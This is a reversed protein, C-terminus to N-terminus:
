NGAPAPIDEWDVDEIRCLVSEFENWVIEEPERPMAPLDFMAVDGTMAIRQRVFAGDGLDIRVPFQVYFDDPVDQQDIKCSITWSGDANETQKTAIRYTPLYSNYIWQDFFWTMDSNVHREVMKRFDDTSVARGKNEQYFDRLIALFTSEDFTNLDMIMNRLMHLFWAGKQYIILSYNGPTKSTNNRYGLYIPGPEVGKDILKERNEFLLERSDELFKFLREPNNQRMQVYMFSSYESFAESIWQDHYSKWPTPLGWWQHAVEHARFAEMRGDTDEVNFTAISLHILGPFAQGHGYPIETAYFHSDECPGFITQYFSLSNHVDIAVNELLDGRATEEAMLVTVDPISDGEIEYRQFNGINFSMHIVPRDTKWASYIADDKEDYRQRIGGAVFTFDVPSVFQMDFMSPFTEGHTPYWNASSKLFTRGLTKLILDGHYFMTLSDRRGQQSPQPLKVWVVGHRGEHFEDNGTVDAFELRSGDSALVSDVGLGSYLTFMVWRRNSDLETYSLQASASFDMNDAIRGDIRYTDIRIDQEVQQTLDVNNFIDAMKDHQSIPEMYDKGGLFIDMRQHLQVEEIDYPDVMFALDPGDKPSFFCYFFDKAGKELFAKIVAPTYDNEATAAPGSMHLHDTMREIEYEMEDEINGPVFKLESNLEDLTGDTFLLVARSFRRQLRSEGFFRKVQDGEIKNTPGFDIEGDGFFVLGPTRGDFEQLLAFRGSKFTFTASERQLYLNNVSSTRRGDAKLHMLNDFMRDYETGKAAPQAHASDPAVITILLVAALSLLTQVAPIHATLNRCNNM